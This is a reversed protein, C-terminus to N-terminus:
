RITKDWRYSRTIRGISILKSQYYSSIPDKSDKLTDLGIGDRGNEKGSSHFYFGNKFYIGVHNCNLSNGFFLLDGIKLKNIDLPPKNIEKCFNKMQYSDRPLYIDHKMFAAQILGSCDFHPGITGGWLYHNKLESQFKIWNLVVPMANKIIENDCLFKEKKYANEKTCILQDINIWCLYGDEFLQVLLRRKKKWDINNLTIEVLRFFRNECIETILNSGAENQFGQINSKLQWWTTTSFNNQKFLSIPDIYNM